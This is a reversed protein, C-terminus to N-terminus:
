VPDRSGARQAGIARGSRWLGWCLSAAVGTVDAAWDALSPNRGVFRQSWEDAAAYAAFVMMLFFANSTSFGVRIERVARTALWGLLFFAAVHGAKDAHPVPMERPAGVPMHTVLFLFAWYTLWILVWRRSRRTDQFPSVILM